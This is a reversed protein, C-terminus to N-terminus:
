PVDHVGSVGRGVGCTRESDIKQPQLYVTTATVNQGYTSEVDTEAQSPNQLQFRVIKTFQCNTAVSEISFEVPPPTTGTNIADLGGAGTSGEVLSITSGSQIDKDSNQKHTHGVNTQRIQGPLDKILQSAAAPEHSAFIDFRTSKGTGHVASDVARRELPDTVSGKDSGYVGSAGYVRPDPVGAITLGFVEVSQATVEYSLEHKTKDGLVIVGPISRMTAITAPSDHNGALWIMPVTATIARIQDLYAPTMEASTGFETEDGTSVILKADFNKAYQAVLPYTSALHMDSIYMVNFAAPAASESSIQQQLQAQIGAIASIVDYVKSEHNYFRALQAPVLQAAGLTGTLHSRKAWGPNYTIRGYGALLALATVVAAVPTAFGRWRFPRRSHGRLYRLAMMVIASAGLGLLVGGLAVGGLWWAIHPIQREIDTQLLQAFGIGDSNAATALHFVDVDKPSIHVGVPLGDVHPFQWSGLTTDASLGADTLVTGQVEFDIGAAKAHYPLLHLMVSAGAVPLVVWVAAVFIMRIGRLALWGTRRLLTSATAGAAPADQFEPGFPLQQQGSAGALESGESM